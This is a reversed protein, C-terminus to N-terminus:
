RSMRPAVSGPIIDNFAQAYAGQEHYTYYDLADPWSSLTFDPSLSGNTLDKQVLITASAVLVPDISTLPVSFSAADTAIKYAVLTSAISLTPSSPGRFFALLPASASAPQTMVFGAALPSTIQFRGQADTQVTPSNQLPILTGDTKAGVVLAIAQGSLPKETFPMAIKQFMRTTDLLGTPGQALGSLNFSGVPLAPLSRTSTLPAPAPTTPASAQCGGLAMLLLGCVLRQTM